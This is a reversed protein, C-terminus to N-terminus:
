LSAVFSKDRDAPSRTVVSRNPAQPQVQGHQAFEVANAKEAYVKEANAKKEAQRALFPDAWTGSIGETINSHKDREMAFEAYMKERMQKMEEKLKTEQVKREREIETRVM